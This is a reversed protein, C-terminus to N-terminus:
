LILQFSSLYKRERCSTSFLEIVVSSRSVVKVKGAQPYIIIESPGGATKATEKTGWDKPPWLGIKEAEKDPLLITPAETGFGSNALAPGQIKRDKREVITKVRIVM